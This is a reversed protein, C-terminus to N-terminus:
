EVAVVEKIADGICEQLYQGIGFQLTMAAMPCGVCAGRFRVKVVGTEEDFDVFEVDGGDARIYPRIEGLAEAIKDRTSKEDRGEASM